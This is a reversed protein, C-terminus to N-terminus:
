EATKRLPLWRDSGEPEDAIIVFYVSAPIPGDNVSLLTKTVTMGYTIDLTYKVNKIDFGGASAAATIVITNGSIESIECSAIQWIPDKASIIPELEASTGIKLHEYKTPDFTLDVFSSDGIKIEASSFSKKRGASFAVFLNNDHIWLYEVENHGNTSEGDLQYVVVHDPIPYTSDSEEAAVAGTPLLGATMCVVLLMSMLKKLMTKM